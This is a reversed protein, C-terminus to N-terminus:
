RPLAESQEGVAFEGFSVGSLEGVPQAAGLESGAGRAQLPPVGGADLVDVEALGAAEVLGEDQRQGVPAPYTFM